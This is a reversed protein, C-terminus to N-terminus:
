GAWLTLAQIATAFGAIGGAMIGFMRLTGLALHRDEDEKVATTVFSAAGCVLVFTGILQTM